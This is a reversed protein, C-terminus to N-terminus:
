EAFGEGIALAHNPGFDCFGKHGPDLVCPFTADDVVAVGCFQIGTETPIEDDTASRVPSVTSYNRCKPCERATARDGVRFILLYPGSRCNSCPASIMRYVDSTRAECAECRCRGDITGVIAEDNGDTGLM